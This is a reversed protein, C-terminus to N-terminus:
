DKAAGVDDGGDRHYFDTIRIRKPPPLNVHTYRKNDCSEHLWVAVGYRRQPVRAEAPKIVKGCWDCRM